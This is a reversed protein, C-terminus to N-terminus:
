KCKDLLASLEVGVVRALECPVANGIQKYKSTLDGCFQMNPPFTQIAAAEQWSLRRTPQNSNSGFVWHDRELKIMDPSSPHLPVQKAMAPITFSVDEWGRKRNRSMFRSSYPAQCIDAAAPEPLPSLAQRLNTRTLAPEPMTFALNYKTALDQRIGVIIVRYRDQPVHYDAANVLHISLQYGKSAFDEVIAEKIQGKGLTLLGKVNEALFVPPQKMEVFKVCYRYLSNRSDDIKRPGALSFGQCPFGFSVLDCNPITNFDLAGIDGEVVEADSWLRHTACADRSFDNAWITKFGAQELGIDLGGAGSFLSVHTYENSM